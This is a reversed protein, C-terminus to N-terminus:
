SVPEAVAPRVTLDLQAANELPQRVGKMALLTIRDAPKDPEAPVQCEYVSTFGAHDLANLLSAKTPWFSYTNDLSAWLNVERERESAGDLHERYLSGRYLHDHYEVERDPELSVHTDFIAFGQCVDAIARLWDFVDPYDLHYLIGLCLVVDFSGHRDLSLSRVDDQILELRDLGLVEKVFRAKAINAERGEIGVASAGQRAFEIAYLGELCALDLVRLEGAPARATDLVM